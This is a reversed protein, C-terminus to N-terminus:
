SKLKKKLEKLATKITTKESNKEPSRKLFFQLQFSWLMAERKKKLHVFNDWNANLEPLWLALHAKM